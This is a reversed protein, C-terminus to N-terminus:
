MAEVSRLGSMTQHFSAEFFSHITSSVAQKLKCFATMHPVGRAGVEVTILHTNYGAWRARNVLDEFNTEKREATAKFGHLRLPCSSLNVWFSIEERSDLM